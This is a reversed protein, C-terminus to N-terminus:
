IRTLHEKEDEFFPGFSQLTTANVLVLIIKRVEQLPELM